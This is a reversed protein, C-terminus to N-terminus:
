PPTAMAGHRERSLSAAYADLLGQSAGTNIAWIARFRELRWVPGMTVLRLQDYYQHLAPDVIRNERMEVSEIYGAPIDRFLHGRGWGDELNRSPLRALLPDSLGLNDITDFHPGNAYGHFGIAGWVMPQPSDDRTGHSIWEDANRWGAHRRELVRLLGAAAYYNGREDRIGTAEWPPPEYGGGSVLPPHPDFASAAVAAAAIAAAVRPDRVLYVIAVVSSLLPLAFMRGSMYDGGIRMTYAVYAAAGALPLLALRDARARVAVFTGFALSAAILPLTERDFRLSNAFYTIGNPHVWSGMRGANLKAAATNPLAFGYYVLSFATWLTAPATGLAVARVVRLRLKPAARVLLWAVAPGVCVVADPRNLYVLSALALLGAVRSETAALLPPREVFLLSAFFWAVLVHTLPNELGSTSYDVFAKSGVLLVAALAVSWEPRGRLARHLVVLVGVTLALSTFMTTLYAEHTVFYLCALLLAWLPHTYAQVREYPNWTLGYGHVFNDITRFTIYPDDGCWANAFTAYGLLTVAGALWPWRGPISV